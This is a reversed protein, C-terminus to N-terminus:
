ILLSKNRKAIKKVNKKSKYCKIKNVNHVYTTKKMIRVNKAILIVDKVYNLPIKNLIVVLVNMVHYIIQVLKVHLM